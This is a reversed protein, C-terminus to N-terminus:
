GVLTGALCRHLGGQPVVTVRSVQDGLPIEKQIRRERQRKTHFSYETTLKRGPRGCQLFDDGLAEIKAGVEEIQLALAARQPGKAEHYQAQLQTLRSSLHGLTRFQSSTM